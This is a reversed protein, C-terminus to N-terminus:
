DLSPPPSTRIRAGPGSEPGWGLARGGLVFLGLTAYLRLSTWTLSEWVQYTTDEGEPHLRWGIIAPWSLWIVLVIATVIHFAARDPGLRSFLVAIPVLLLCQGHPWLAPSLLLMALIGLSFLVDTNIADPQERVPGSARLFLTTVLVFSLGTLAVALWPASLLPATPIHTGPDFLKSWLGPLSINTPDSRYAAIAPIADTVFARFVDFGFVCGAGLLLAAFSLTAGYVSRWRGLALFYLVLFGPYLKVAAALGVLTGALWAHGRRDAFWAGTVLGLLVMHVNGYQFQRSVPYASTLALGLCLTVVLRGAPTAGPWLERLVLHVSILLLLIGLGSWIAFATRYEFCALGLVLLTMTPPHANRTLIPEAPANPLGLHPRHRAYNKTLPAYISDGIFHDRGAAWDQYLDIAPIELHAHSVSLFTREATRLGGLLLIAALWTLLWLAVVWRHRAPSV